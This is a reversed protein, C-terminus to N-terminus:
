RRGSGPAISRSGGLPGDLPEVHVPYLGNWLVFHSVDRHVHVSFRCDDRTSRKAIICPNHSKSPTATLQFFLEITSIPVDLHPTPGMTLFQGQALTVAQGGSRQVFRPVGGQATGPARGRADDLDDEMRWYALLNQDALVADAYRDRDESSAFLATTAAAAVTAGTTTLFQRRSLSM